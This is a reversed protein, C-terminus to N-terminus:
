SYVKKYIWYNELVKMVYNRTENYPIEEIFLDMDSVKSKTWHKVAMPGANYSALTFVMNNDFRGLLEEMYKVGLKINLGPSMLDDINPSKLGLERSISRATYPMLQMLGIAGVKSVIEPQYRSEQKILAHALMPDLKQNKGVEDALLDAYLLPFAFQFKLDEYRPITKHDISFYANSIAKLHNGSLAYLYSRLLTDLKWKEKEENELIFEYRQTMFLESLDRGYDKEFFKFDIPQPWTWTPFSFFENSSPQKFWHKEGKLISLARFSYYNYPYEESLELFKSNALDLRGQELYIKAAWFAVFTRSRSEPYKKWHEEALTLARHYTKRSYEKWFARSMSEAAYFSEPYDEFVKKYDVITDTRRAIEWFVKDQAILMKPALLRLYGLVETRKSIELLYDLSDKTLSENKLQPIKELLITKAEQIKKQRVLSKAYALLYLDLSDKSLDFYELAKKFDEHNYYALAIYNTLDKGNSDLSIFQDAVLHALSGDPSAQLYRRLREIRGQIDSSLNSLYYDSGLDYDTGPFEKQVAEFSSKAELSLNQRSYSKALEYKFEAEKPHKKILEKLERIVISELGIDRSLKVLKMRSFKSLYNKDLRYRSIFELAKEDLESYLDALVYQKRNELRSPLATQKKLEQIGRLSDRRSLEIAQTLSKEQEQFLKTNEQSVFQPEILLFLLVLLLLFALVAILSSFKKFRSQFGLLLNWFSKQLKELLDV